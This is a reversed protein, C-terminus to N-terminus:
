RLKVSAEIYELEASPNIKFRTLPLGRRTVQEKLVVAYPSNVFKEVPTIWFRKKSGKCTVVGIMTVPRQLIKDLVAVDFLWANKKRYVDRGSRHALYLCGGSEPYYFMGVFEGNVTHPVRVMLNCWGM